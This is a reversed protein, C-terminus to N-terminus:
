KLGVQQRMRPIRHLMISALMGGLSPRVAQAEQLSSTCLRWMMLAPVEGSLVGRQLGRLVQV